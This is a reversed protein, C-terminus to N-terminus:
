GGPYKNLYVYGVLEGMKTFEQQFVLKYRTSLALKKVKKCATIVIKIINTAVSCTNNLLLMFSFWALMAVLLSSHAGFTLSSPVVLLFALWTFTLTLMSITFWFCFLWSINKM